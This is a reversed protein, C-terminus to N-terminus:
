RGEETESLRLTAHTDVRPPHKTEYTEIERGQALLYALPDLGTLLCHRAFADLKFVLERGDEFGLRERELDILLLGEPEAVVREVVRQWDAVPLAVSLLGNKAANNEFIDAFRPAVVARFGFDLLAWVAHERSSGCGFNDGALLIEAGQAGPQHLVFDPVPSGDAAFRWGAFLGAGLGAKTTAKLYRAPIIQDTDINAAPLVLARSLLQTFRTM